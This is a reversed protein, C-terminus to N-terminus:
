TFVKRKELSDFKSVIHKACATHALMRAMM